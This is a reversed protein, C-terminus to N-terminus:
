DESREYLVVRRASQLAQRVSAALEATHPIGRDTLADALASEFAAYRTASRAAAVIAARVEPSRARGPLDAV